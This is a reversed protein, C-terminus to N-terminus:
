IIGGNVKIEVGNIYSAESSLLFKVVNAVEEPQGFRKSPILRRYDKKIADTINETMTTEIFGPSVCVCRVSSNQDIATVEKAISATMAVLAAKSMSYAVQFANGMRGVCSGINIITGESNATFIKLAAKAIVLPARLNIAILSDIDDESQFVLAKDKTIGANNVVAALHPAATKLSKCFATLAAKDSLDAAMIIHEGPLLAALQELKVKDRGHLLLQYDGALKEGIAKGIGGTAGTILVQKKGTM